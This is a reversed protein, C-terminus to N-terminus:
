TWGRREGDTGLMWIGNKSTCVFLTRGDPAVELGLRQREPVLTEFVAGLEILSMEGLSCKYVQGDGALVYAHGEADLSLSKSAASFRACTVVSPRKPM